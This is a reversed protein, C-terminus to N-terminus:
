SGRLNFLPAQGVEIDQMVALIKPKSSQSAKVGLRVLLREFLQASATEHAIVGDSTVLSLAETLAATWVSAGRLLALPSQKSTSIEFVRVAKGPEACGCLAHSNHSTALM